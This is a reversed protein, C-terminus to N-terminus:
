KKLSNLHNFFNPYSVSIAEPNELIVEDKCLQAAIALMMGIRHDGHSSVTGGNLSSGGYIIM